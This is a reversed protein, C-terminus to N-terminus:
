ALGLYQRWPVSSPLETVAGDFTVLLPGNGALAHVPDGTRLFESSNYFFLWGRDIQLTDTEVLVLDEGSKRAIELLRRSAIGKAEQVDIM